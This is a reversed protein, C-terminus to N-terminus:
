PPPYAYLGLTFRVETRESLLSRNLALTPFLPLVILLPVLVVTVLSLLPRITVPVLAAAAFTTSRVEVVVVDPLLTEEGSERLPATPVIVREFVLVVPSLFEFLAILLLRGAVPLVLMVFLAVVVSLDDDSAFLERLDVLM